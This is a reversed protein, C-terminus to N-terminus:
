AQAQGKHRWPFPTQNVKQSVLGLPGLQHAMQTLYIQRSTGISLIVQTPDLGDDSWDFM